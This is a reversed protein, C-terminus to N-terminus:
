LILGKPTGLCFDRYPMPQKGEPQVTILILLAQDLKAELIKIRKQDQIMFAGPYPSYAKIKQFKTQLSDEPKLERDASSLKYCYSAKEHDQSAEVIKDPIFQTQIFELCAEASLQSLKTTLTGLNDLPEIALKQTLVVAGEDMKENMHILSVGTELDGNLLSTQIPSAGRYAPLISGHSNLCFFHDTVAKPLIMGYAIVVILDPNLEFVLDKLSLKNLPTFVTLDHALAWSKVPTPDLHKGRGKPKDPQSFVAQICGPFQTYLMKLTPIAFDPSGMLVIKKIACM